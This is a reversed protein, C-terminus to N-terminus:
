RRTPGEGRVEAEGAAGEEDEEQQVSAQPLDYMRLRGQRCPTPPCALARPVPTLTPNTLNMNQAKYTIYAM